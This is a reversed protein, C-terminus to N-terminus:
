TVIICNKLGNFGLYQKKM